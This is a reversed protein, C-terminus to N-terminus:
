RELESLPPFDWMEALSRGAVCSREHLSKVEQGTCFEPNDRKVLYTSSFGANLAGECDSLEQDGVHVVTCLCVPRYSSFM